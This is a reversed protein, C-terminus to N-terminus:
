SEKPSYHSSIRAPYEVDMDYDKAMRISNLLANHRGVGVSLVTNHPNDHTGFTQRITYKKGDATIYSSLFDESASVKTIKDADITTKSKDTGCARGKLGDVLILKGNFSLPSIRSVNM